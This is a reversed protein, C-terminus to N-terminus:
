ALAVPRLGEFGVGRESIAMEGDLAVLSWRSGYVGADLWIPPARLIDVLRTRLGARDLSEAGSLMQHALQTKQDEAADLALNGLVHWGPTLHVLERTQDGRLCYWDRGRGFLVNFPNFALVDLARAVAAMEAPTRSRLLELVIHGRSRRSPDSPTGPHINTLMAMAGDTRAAFWTGGAALDRGGWIDTELRQFPATDRARLEDRNAAVAVSCAPHADLGFVVTCM